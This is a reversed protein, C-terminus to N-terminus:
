KLRSRYEPRQKWDSFYPRYEDMETWSRPGPDPPVVKGEPYDLGQVSRNVSANWATWLKKLRAAIEPQKDIIDTTEQPDAALDYLVFSAGDPTDPNADLLKYNNDLFATRGAHRFGIPQARQKLDQTFLPQLSIGDQPVSSAPLGTIDRLTPFIDVTCAPYETIRPKTIVAPWEIIAPVRLGGEFLSNKFGRLGGVTDPQIKPLGGNDSCFWVLTNDAINLQRLGRRLTGISRDMAVLEGYHNASSPDLDSFAAKDEDDAVFPSHPTGYWIVTFCPKDAAVADQIFQLAQDVVIESSDGKFEEFTGRRSLLPNRDFFNTVSLWKQFGFAGPSRIDDALIPIGPGRIGNLHWKGFHGTLYGQQALAQAITTEQPRLPIGHNTVGTRDNTRGTMVTARTPSCNSAGAYFRDLRLGHAAMADLNPTKLVPHHYYGTQGWGMDDAMVLVINPRAADVSTTLFFEACAQLIAAILFVRHPMTTNVKTASNIPTRDIRIHVQM